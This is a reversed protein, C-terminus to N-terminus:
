KKWGRERDLIQADRTTRIEISFGRHSPLDVNYGQRGAVPGQQFMTVEVVRVGDLPGDMIEIGGRFSIRNSILKITRKLL